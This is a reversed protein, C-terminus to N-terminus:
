APVVEVEQSEQAGNSATVTVHSVSGLQFAPGMVTFVVLVGKGPELQARVEVTTPDTSMAPCTASIASRGAPDYLTYCFQATPSVGETSVSFSGAALDGSNYVLLSELGFHEGQRITAGTVSVAPGRISGATSMVTGFVAASGGVALGILIFVELYAAM